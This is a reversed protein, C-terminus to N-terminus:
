PKREKKAPVLTPRDIEREWGVLERFERVQAEAIAGCGIFIIVMDAWLRRESNELGAQPRLRRLRSALVNMERRTLPM